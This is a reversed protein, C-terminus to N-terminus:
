PTAGRNQPFYAAVLGNFAELVEELERDAVDILRGIAL